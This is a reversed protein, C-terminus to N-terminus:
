PSGVFYRESSLDQVFLLDAERAILRASKISRSPEAAL